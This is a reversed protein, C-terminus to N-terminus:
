PASSSSESSAGSPVSSSATKSAVPVLTYSGKKNTVKMSAVDASTKSVLQINSASAESSSASSAGGGNKTLLITAAGLAVACGALIILSRTGKKM